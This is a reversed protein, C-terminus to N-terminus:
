NHSRAPGNDKGGSVQSSGMSTRASPAKGLARVETAAARAAGSRSADVGEYGADAARMRAVLSALAARTAAADGLLSQWESAFEDASEGTWTAGVVGTVSANATELQSDFESVLAQLADATTAVAGTSVFFRSM